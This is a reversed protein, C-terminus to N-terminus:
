VGEKQQVPPAPLTFKPLTLFHTPPFPHPWRAYTGNRNPWGTWPDTIYGDPRAAILVHVTGWREEPDLEEVPRWMSALAATLAARMLMKEVVDHILM